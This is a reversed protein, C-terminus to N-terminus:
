DFRVIICSAATWPIQLGSYRKEEGEEVGESEANGRGGGGGEEEAEGMGRGGERNVGGGEGERNGLM